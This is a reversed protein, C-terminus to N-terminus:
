CPSCTTCVGVGFVSCYGAAGSALWCSLAPSHTGCQPSSIDGHFTSTGVVDLTSSPTLTGLGVKGEKTVAIANVSDDINRLLWTGNDSLFGGGVMMAWDRGGLSTNIIDQRATSGDGAITLLSVPTTTGIGMNGGLVSLATGLGCEQNDVTAFVTPDVQITPTTNSKCGFWTHPTNLAEGVVAFTHDTHLEANNIGFNGISFLSSGTGYNDANLGASFSSQGYGRTSGFTTAMASLAQSSNAAFAATGSAFSGNNFAASAFGHVTTGSNAAFGYTSSTLTISGGFGFNSSDGEGGCAISNGACFSSPGGVSISSGIGASGTAGSGITVSNGMAFSYPANAQANYGLAVSGTATAWSDWGAAFSAFGSAKNGIGFSASGIGTQDNDTQNSSSYGTHFAMLRANWLLKGGAGDAGPDEGSLTTSGTMNDVASASMAWISADGNGNPGVLTLQQNQNAADVSGLAMKNIAVVNDGLVAETYFDCNTHALPGVCANKNNILYYGNNFATEKWPGLLTNDVYDLLGTSDHAALVKGSLPNDGTVYLISTTVTSSSFVNNATTNGTVNLNNEVHVNAGRLIIPHGSDTSSVVFANEGVTTTVTSSTEGYVVNSTLITATQSVGAETNLVGVFITSTGMAGTITPGYVTQYATSASSNCNVADSPFSNFDNYWSSSVVSWFAGWAPRGGNLLDQLPFNMVYTCSLNNAAPNNDPRKFDFHGTYTKTPDYAIGQEVAAGWPSGDSDSTIVQQVCNAQGNCDSTNRTQVVGGDPSNGFPVAYSTWIDPLTNLGNWATFQGNLIEDTFPTTSVVTTQDTLCISAGNLTSTVIHLCGSVTSTGTLTSNTAYLNRWVKSPSGLDYTNTTEPLITRQYTTTPAAYAVQGFSLGVLVLLGLLIKRM